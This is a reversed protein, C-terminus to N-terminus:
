AHAMQKADKAMREGISEVLQLAAEQELNEDLLGVCDREGLREHIFLERPDNMAM